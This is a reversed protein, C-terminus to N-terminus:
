QKYDFVGWMNGSYDVTASVELGAQGIREVEGGSLRWGSAAANDSLQKSNKAGAIVGGVGPQELCWRLAVQAATKDHARGIETLLDTVGVAKEYTGEKFLLNSSRIDDPIDSRTRYKGTLLGQALPSYPLLSVGHEVCWPLLDDSERWVVSLSNQLSEFRAAEIAEALQGAFFNSVGIARVKGSQRARDMARLTEDIPIKRSPYHVQYLDVYDTGMRELCGDLQQDIAGLDDRLWVKSAIVVKDRIGRVARGVVAESEGKGYAFATDIMTIGLDVAERILREAETGHDVGKWSDGGFQWAGLIVEPIEIDTRGLKRYEM